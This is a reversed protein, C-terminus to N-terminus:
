KARGKGVIVIRFEEDSFLYTEETVKFAGTM